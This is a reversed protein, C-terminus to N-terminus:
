TSFNWGILFVKANREFFLEKSSLYCLASARKWFTAKTRFICNQKGFIQQFWRFTKQFFMKSYLFFITKELFFNVTQLFFFIKKLVIKVTQLFFVKKISLRYFIFFEEQFFIWNSSSFFVIKKEGFKKQCCFFEWNRRIKKERERTKVLLVFAFRFQSVSFLHLQFFFTRANM